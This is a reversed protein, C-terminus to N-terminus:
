LKVDEATFTEGPQKVIFQEADWPGKFLAKLFAFTTPATMQKLNFRDAFDKTQDALEAIDYTGTDLFALSNYHGLMDEHIEMALEEGYAEVAMDYGTVINNEGDMWGRTLYYAKHEKAFAVRTAVSGMMLSICDDVRPLIITHSQTNLGIVSNGCTGFAMLVHTYDDPLNDITEQLRALLKAPTNHLGSEIWYIPYDVNLERLCAEVERKITECAVMCTSSHLENEM